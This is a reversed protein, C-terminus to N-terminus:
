KKKSKLKSSKMKKKAREDKNEQMATFKSDDSWPSQTDQKSKKVSKPADSFILPGSDIPPLFYGRPSELADNFSPQFAMNEFSQETSKRRDSRGKTKKKAAEWDGSDSVPTVASHLPKFSKPFQQWQRRNAFSQDQEDDSYDTSVDYDPQPEDQIMEVPTSVSGVTFHSMEHKTPRHGEAESWALSLTASVPRKTATSPRSALLIEDEDLGRHHDSRNQDGNDTNYLNSQGSHQPDGSVKGFTTGAYNKLVTEKSMIRAQNPQTKKAKFKTVQHRQTLAEPENRKDTHSPWPLSRAQVGFYSDLVNFSTETEDRAYRGTYDTRHELRSGSQSYEDEQLRGHRNKKKKKKCYCVVIVFCCTASVLVTGVCIVLIVWWTLGTDSEDVSEICFDLHGKFQCEPVGMEGECYFLISELMVSTADLKGLRPYDRICTELLHDTFGSSLDTCNETVTPDSLVALCDSVSLKVDNGM